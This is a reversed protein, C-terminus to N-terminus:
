AHVDDYTNRSSRDYITILDFYLFIFIPINNQCIISTWCILTTSLLDRVLIHMTGFKLCTTYAFLSVHTALHRFADLWNWLHTMDLRVTGSLMEAWLQRRQAWFDCRSKEVTSDIQVIGMMMLYIAQLWLLIQGGSLEYFRM